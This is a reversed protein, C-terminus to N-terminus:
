FKFRRLFLTNSIQNSLKASVMSNSQGKFEDNVESLSLPVLGDEVTLTVGSDVKKSLPAAKVYIKTAAEFIADKFVKTKLPNKNGERDSLVVQLVDGPRLKVVHPIEFTWTGDEAVITELDIDLEKGNLALSLIAGVEDAFGSITRATYEIENITRVPTPPTVDAVTICTVVEQELGETQGIYGTATYTTGATFFADNPLTYTFTGDKDNQGIQITDDQDNTVKITVIGEKLVREDELTASLIYSQDADTLQDFSLNLTSDRDSSGGGGSIRSYKKTHWNNLLSADNDTGAIPRGTSGAILTKWDWSFDAPEDFNLAKRTGDWVAIDAEKIAFYGGQGVHISQANAAQITNRIDYVFPSNLEFTSGKNKLNIVPAKGPSTFKVTSGPGAYFHGTVNSHVDDLAGQYHGWNKQNRTTIGEITAGDFVNIYKDKKGNTRYKFEFAHGPKTVKLKAGKYVNIAQWHAYIAPFTINHNAIGKAPNNYHYRPKGGLEVIAGEGINVTKDLKAAERPFWWTSYDHYDIVGFVHAGPEVTIQGAYFNEGSSEMFVENRLFIQGRPLKGVRHVEDFGDKRKRDETTAHQKKEFRINDLILQWGEIENGDYNKVYNMGRTWIDLNQLHITQKQGVIRGLTFLSHNDVFQNGSVRTSKLTHNKGDIQLSRMLKYNSVSPQLDKMKGRKDRPGESLDINASLEIRSIRPNTYAALFEAANMVKASSWDKVDVERAQPLAPAEKRKIKDYNLRNFNEANEDQLQIAALRIGGCISAAGIITAFFFAISRKVVEKISKNNM